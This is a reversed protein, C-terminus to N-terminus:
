LPDKPKLLEHCTGHLKWMQEPRVTGARALMQRLKEDAGAIENKEADPLVSLHLLLAEEIETADFLDGISADAVQPHDYLIIPSSLVAHDEEGVLVPWTGFNQCQEAASRWVPEPELVSLFKGGTAILITHASLFSWPFVEDRSATAPAPVTTANVIRAALRFVQPLDAVERAALTVTGKLSAFQIPMSVGETVLRRLLVEDSAVEREVVEAGAAGLRQLFRVTVRVRLDPGGTVLCETQMFSGVEPHREAYERPYVVGFPISKTNKVASRTYPFLSHGEYLVARSLAELKAGAIDM